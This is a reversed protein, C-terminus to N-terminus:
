SMSKTSNAHNSGKGIMNSVARRFVDIDHDRWMRKRITTTLSRLWFTGAQLSSFMDM